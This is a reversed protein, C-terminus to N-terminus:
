PIRRRWNIKAGERFFDIVVKASSVFPHMTTAWLAGNSVPNKYAAARKFLMSNFQAPTNHVKFM